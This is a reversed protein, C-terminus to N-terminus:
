HICASSSLFLPACCFGFVLGSHFQIGGRAASLARLSPYTVREGFLRGQFDEQCGASGFGLPALLRSFDIRALTIIAHRASDGNLDTGSIPLASEVSLHPASPFAIAFLVTLMGGGEFENRRIRGHMNGSFTAIGGAGARTRLLLATTRRGVAGRRGISVVASLVRAGLSLTHKFIPGTYTANGRARHARVVAITTNSTIIATSQAQAANCLWIGVSDLWKRGLLNSLWLDAVLRGTCLAQAASRLCVRARVLVLDLSM